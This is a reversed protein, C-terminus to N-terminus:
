PSEEAKRTIGQLLHVTLEGQELLREVQKNNKQATERWEDRDKALLDVQGKTWLKGTAFLIVLFVLLGVVGVGNLLDASLWEM